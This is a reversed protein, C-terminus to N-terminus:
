GNIEKEYKEAVDVALDWIWHTEEDLPGGEDAQGFADACGEALATCNVEGCSRDEYDHVNQIMWARAEGKTM